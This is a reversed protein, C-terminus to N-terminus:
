AFLPKSCAGLSDGIVGLIKRKGLYDSRTGSFVKVSLATAEGLGEVMGVMIASAGLVSVMFVPLLSHIIESSIDMLMSVFGLVWISAPIQHLPSAASARM